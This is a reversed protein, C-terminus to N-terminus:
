LTLDTPPEQAQLTNYTEGSLPHVLTSSNKYIRSTQYLAKIAKWKPMFQYKDPFESKLLLHVKKLHRGSLTPFLHHEVHYGFNLHLAEFIPHNTVTLSNTLPDNSKTLPSLNHNTSIYSFPLYNMFVFPILVAWLWQSPGLWILASLHILGALILERNVKKNDLKKFINNRYRFYHQAVQANFSFWFFLYLYSRKRKSGPTFPFMWRIFRSQRYIKLTPFADPDMIIKQTYSHHLNNHWYRWFTPSILYPLFCFFGLINQVKKSRVISGHLLEHGFLGGISWCYGIVLSLSLNFYWPLQTIGIVAVCILGALQSAVLPFLYYINPKFISRPLHQKLYRYEKLQNEGLSEWFLDIDSQDSFNSLFMM